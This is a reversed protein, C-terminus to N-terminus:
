AAPKFLLAVMWVLLFGFLFVLGLMLLMWALLRWLSRRPQMYRM